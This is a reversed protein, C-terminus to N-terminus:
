IYSAEITAKEEKTSEIQALDQGTINGEWDPVCYIVFFLHM